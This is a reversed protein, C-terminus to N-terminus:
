SPKKLQRLKVYLNNREESSLHVYGNVLLEAQERKIILYPAIERLLVIAVRSGSITWNYSTKWREPHSTPSRKEGPYAQRVYGRGPLKEELWEHLKMSTNAITVFVRYIYDGKKGKERNMLICGEGDIIGALYGKEAETLHGIVSGSFPIGVEWCEKDKHVGLRTARIRIGNLERMPLMQAIKSQTATPYHLRIIEDEEPTYFSHAAM